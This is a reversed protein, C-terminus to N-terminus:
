EARTRLCELEATARDLEAIVECYRKWADLVEASDKRQVAELSRRATDHQSQIRQHQAELRNLRDWFLDGLWFPLREALANVTDQATSM